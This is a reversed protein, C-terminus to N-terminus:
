APAVEEVLFACALAYWCRHISSAMVDKNPLVLLVSLLMNPCKVEANCVFLNSDSRLQLHLKALLKRTRCGFLLVHM